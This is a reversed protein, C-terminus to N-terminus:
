SRGHCSILTRGRARWTYSRCCTSTSPRRLAPVSLLHRTRTSYVVYIIVFNMYDNYMFDVFVTKVLIIRIAPHLKCVSYSYYYEYMYVYM